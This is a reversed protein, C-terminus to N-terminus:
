DSTERQATTRKEQSPHTLPTKVSPKAIASTNSLRTFLLSSTIWSNATKAGVMGLSVHAFNGGAGWLAAKGGGGGGRRAKAHSWRDANRRRVMRVFMRSDAGADRLIKTRKRHQRFNDQRLAVQVGSFALLGVSPASGRMSRSFAQGQRGLSGIQQKRALVRQLSPIRTLHFRHCACLDSM